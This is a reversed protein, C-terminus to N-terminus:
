RTLTLVAAKLDAPASRAAWAFLLSARSACDTVRRALAAAWLATEQGKTAAGGGGHSACGVFGLALILAPV